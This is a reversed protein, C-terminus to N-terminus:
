ADEDGDWKLLIRQLDASAQAANRATRGARDALDPDAGADLLAQVCLEANYATASVIPPVGDRAIWNPDFKLAILYRVLEIEHDSAAAETLANRRAGAPYRDAGSALILDLCARDGGRIAALLPTDGGSTQYNVTAHREILLKAMEVNGVALATLLPSGMTQSAHNVNAGRALLDKVAEADEMQLATMLPTMENRDMAEILPGETVRRLQALNHTAIADLVPSDSPPDVADYYHNAAPFSVALLIVVAALVISRLFPLM